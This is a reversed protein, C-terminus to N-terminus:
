EYIGEEVESTVRIDIEESPRRVTLLMDVGRSSLLPDRSSVFYVRYMDVNRKSQMVEVWFPITHLPYLLAEMHLVPSLQM